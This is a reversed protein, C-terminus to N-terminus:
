FALSTGLIVVTADNNSQVSSSTGKSNFNTGEVYTSLGPAVKYTVGVSYANYKDDGAVAQDGENRSFLANTGVIFPGTEYQLGVNYAEMEDNRPSSQQYGSEGQTVYGGGFTFGEYGLQL